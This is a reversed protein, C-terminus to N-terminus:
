VQWLCSQHFHCCQIAQCHRFSAFSSTKPLTRIKFFLFRFPKSIQTMMTMADDNGTALSLLVPFWLVLLLFGQRAGMPFSPFVKQSYCGDDQPCPDFHLSASFASIKSLTRIKLFSFYLPNPFFSCETSPRHFPIATCAMYSMYSIYTNQFTNQNYSISICFTQLVAVNAVNAVDAVDAVNRCGRVAPFPLFWFGFVLLWDGHKGTM